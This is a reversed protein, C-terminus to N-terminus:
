AKKNSWIVNDSSANARSFLVTKVFSSTTAGCPSNWNRTFPVLDEGFIQQYELSDILLDIHREFGNKNMVEIHNILENQNRLPRGLIHIFNINICQEQNLAELYNKKYFPSKALIRVFERIPIDGNRLRREADIPRESETPYINGYIQKYAGLLATRLSEDDYPSFERYTYLDQSYNNYKLGCSNKELLYNDRIYASITRNNLVCDDYENMRLKNPSFKEKQGPMYSSRCHMFYTSQISKSVRSKGYRPSKYNYLDSLISAFGTKNILLM